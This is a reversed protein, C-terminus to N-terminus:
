ADRGAAGSAAAPRHRRRRGGDRHRGGAALGLSVAFVLILMLALWFSPVSIFAFALLNIAGDLARDPGARRSRHRAAAGAGAGPLLERGDAARHQRAAAAAGRLAPQMYLRSYGFDGHLAARAWALYREVLPRDLGYLAKLRAADAATLHPNSAIMVDIPDGPMLGILAYIVFSMVALVAAM